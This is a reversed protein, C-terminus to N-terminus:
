KRHPLPPLLDFAREFCAWIPAGAHGPEGSEARETHNTPRTTTSKSHGTTRAAYFAQFGQLEHRHRSKNANRM